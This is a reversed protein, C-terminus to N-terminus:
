DSVQDNVPTMRRSAVAIAKRVTLGLNFVSNLSRGKVNKRYRQMRELGTFPPPRPADVTRGYVHFPRIKERKGESIRHFVYAIPVGERKMAKIRKNVTSIDVGVAEAIENTQIGAKGAERLVALISDRSSM